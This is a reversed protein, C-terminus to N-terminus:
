SADRRRRAAPRSASKSRARCINSDLVQQCHDPGAHRCCCGAMCPAIGMDIVYDALRISDEDRCCATNCSRPPRAHDFVTMTVSTLGNFTRSRLSCGDPRVRDALCSLDATFQRWVPHRFQAGDADSGPLSSFALGNTSKRSSAPLLKSEQGKLKDSLGASLDRADYDFGRSIRSDKM